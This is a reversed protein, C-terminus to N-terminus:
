IFDAGSPSPKIGNITGRAEKVRSANDEARILHEHIARVEDAGFVAFGKSNDIEMLKALLASQETTLQETWEPISDFLQRLDM